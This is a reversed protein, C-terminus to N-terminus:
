SPCPGHIVWTPLIYDSPDKYSLPLPESNATPSILFSAPTLFSTLLWLVLCAPLRQFSFLTLFHVTGEPGGSLVLKASVKVTIYNNQIESKWFQVIVFNNENLSSYKYHTYLTNYCCYSVFEGPSQIFLCELLKQLIFPTFSNLNLNSVSFLLTPIATLKVM